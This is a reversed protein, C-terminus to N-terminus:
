WSKFIKAVLVPKDPQLNDYAMLMYDGVQIDGAQYQDKISETIFCDIDCELDGHERAVTAPRANGINVSKLVCFHISCPLNECTILPPNIRPEGTVLEGNVITNIDSAMFSAMIAEDSIEICAYDDPEGGLPTGEFTLTARVKTEPLARLGEEVSHPFVGPGELSAPLVIESDSKRYFVRLAEM